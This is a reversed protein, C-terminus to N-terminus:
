ISAGLFHLVPQFAISTPNMERLAMMSLPAVTSGPAKTKGFAIILDPATPLFETNEVKDIRQTEINLVM